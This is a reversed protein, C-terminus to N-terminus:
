NRRISSNIIDTCAADRILTLSAGTKKYIRPLNRSLFLSIGETVSYAGTNKFVLIDGTAAGNLTLNRALVDATTCLSGCITWSECSNTRDTQADAQLHEIYPLKMAMTQGYYNLHNIGGDVICYGVGGTYKIDVIKTHYEGCGAAIFRGIELVTKCKDTIYTLNEKLNRLILADDQPADERFYCVRLGPGYEVKKVAIGDSEPEALLSSLLQIEKAIKDERKQTGGYFQIGEIEVPLNARESLFEKLAARDMGFQNGSSLRLLVPLRLGTERALKCLLGMQMPSEATYTAAAGCRSLAYRVDSEGKYVGSLVIKHAAIGYRECIRYEGPSCVEFYDVFDALEDVLFPNAKVAYCLKIKEGLASKIFRVRDKLKVTDFVFAPTAIAKKDTMKTNRACSIGTSKETKM